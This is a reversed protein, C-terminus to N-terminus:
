RAAAPGSPAPESRERGRLTFIGNMFLGLLRKTRQPDIAGGAPPLLTIAMVMCVIDDFQVTDAIEGARQARQLLAKGSATAASCGPTESQLVVNLSAALGHYIGTDEVLRELFGKLAAAPAQSAQSTRSQLALTALREDCAAALIEARTPFHRYLTGIGVGARSAIEGLSADAGRETFVEHAAALLSVRNQQADARLPRRSRPPKATM